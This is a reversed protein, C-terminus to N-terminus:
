WSEVCLYQSSYTCCAAISVRGGALYHVSVSKRCTFLILLLSLHLPIHLVQLPDVRAMSVNYFLVLVHTWMSDRQELCDGSFVPDHWLEGACFWKCPRLRMPSSLHVEAWLQSKDWHQPWTCVARCMNGVRVQIGCGRGM